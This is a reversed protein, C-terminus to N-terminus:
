GRWILVEFPYRCNYTARAVRILSLYVHDVNQSKDPLHLGYSTRGFLDAPKAYSRLGLSAGPLGLYRTIVDLQCNYCLMVTFPCALGRCLNRGVPVFM